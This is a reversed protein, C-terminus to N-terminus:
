KEVNTAVKLVTGDLGTYAPWEGSAFADLSPMPQGLRSRYIWLNTFVREVFNRTERSPISEMFFLADGLNDTKRRWKNLNGPGGNWAAAFLSLDGGIKKDALLIEIYKQGLTLNVEPEFLSRRKAGHRYRRDRAVFGATRPMLQMLGRAGARSKARPNFASEQRMVAYILARDIRYGEKPVWAPVPYAAGDYGGGGSFLRDNLKVSLAPLNARAALALIGRAADRDARAAFLRLEREARNVEGVQILALSRRGAPAASLALLAGEELAPTSWDFSIPLGLLRRALLGYFTHPYAAAIGLLSSVKAPRRGVLHSRAAWFAAASIMWPSDERAQVIAEFHGAATGPRGLRWAALGATWHGNTNGSRRAADGAWKLAWEDREAAFYGAGLRARAADMEATSLLRKVEGTRLLKKVALTWGHRLQGRIQRKIASVRRRQQRSLRKGKPRQSATRAVATPPPTAVPARPARWNKPKRRLALKYIQRAYHHDAYQAMWAKLEKYRSRYKTPHLYRQALVHGMLVRDDLKAIFHDAAHWDGKEQSRFIARYRDADAASLIEPLAEPAGGDGTTLAATEVSSKTKPTDAAGAADPFSAALVIGAVTALRITFGRNMM